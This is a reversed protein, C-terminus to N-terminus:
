ETKYPTQKDMVPLMTKEDQNYLPYIDYKMFLILVSYVFHIYYFRMFDFRIGAPM